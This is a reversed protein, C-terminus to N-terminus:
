AGPMLTRQMVLADVDGDPRSYYAKRRGVQEFGSTKYLARAAPNDQAVELSLRVVGSRALSEAGAELLKRGFGCGRRAPSVALTLIEAEDLVTRVMIFGVPVEGAAALLTLAGTQMLSTLEAESWPHDFSDRHLAFLVSAFDPGVADVTLDAM